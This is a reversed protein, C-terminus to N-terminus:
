PGSAPIYQSNGHNHRSFDSSVSQHAHSSSQRDQFDSAPCPHFPPPTTALSQSKPSVVEQLPSNETKRLSPTNVVVLITGIAVFAGAISYALARSM